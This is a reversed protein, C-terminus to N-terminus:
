AYEKKYINIFIGRMAELTVLQQIDFHFSLNSASIINFALKGKGLLLTRGSPRSVHLQRRSGKRYGRSDHWPCVSAEEWGGKTNLDLKYITLQDLTKMGRGTRQKYLTNDNVQFLNLKGWREQVSFNVKYTTLQHPDEM